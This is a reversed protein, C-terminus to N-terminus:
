MLSSDEPPRNSLEPLNELIKKTDRLVILNVQQKPLGFHGANWSSVVSCDLASNQKKTNRLTCPAPPLPGGRLPLPSGKEM